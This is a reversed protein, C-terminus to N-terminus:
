WKNIEQEREDDSCDIDSDSNAYLVDLINAEDGNLLKRVAM